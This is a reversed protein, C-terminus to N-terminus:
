RGKKEFMNADRRLSVATGISDVATKIVRMKSSGQKRDYRLEFPVEAFRAGLLSMKYLAEMMCAFTRREVLDTGYACLAKHVLDHTYMRYGCTYDKVNKVGLIITYFFRAGLSMFQRHPAVGKTESSKCYRSAIVCDAGNRIVPIMGVSYIPDHTDDGDMLVLLDGDSGIADFTTFATMLAGGLGKNVDHEILHVVGPHKDCLSRIVRNTGDTSKDDICYVRLDFGQIELQSQIGVWRNVLSEIDDQENYCPLMAYVVNQEYGM